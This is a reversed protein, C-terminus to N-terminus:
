LRCYIQIVMAHYSELICYYHNIRFEQPKLRIEKGQIEDPRHIFYYKVKFWM